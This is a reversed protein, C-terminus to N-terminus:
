RRTLTNLPYVFNNFEDVLRRNSGGVAM